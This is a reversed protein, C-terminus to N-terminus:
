SSKGRLLRRGHPDGLHRREVLAHRGLLVTASLTDDMKEGFLEDATAM